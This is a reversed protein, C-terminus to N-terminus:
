ASVPHFEPEDDANRKKDQKDASTVDCSIKDVIRSCTFPYAPLTMRINRREPSFGVSMRCFLCIAVLTMGPRELECGFSPVNEPMRTVLQYRRLIQGVIREGRLSAQVTVLIHEIEIVLDFLFHDDEVVPNVISFAQFTHVTVACGPMFVHGSAGITGSDGFANEAVDFFEFSRGLVPFTQIAM